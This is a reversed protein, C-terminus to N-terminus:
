GGLDERGSDETFLEISDGVAIAGSSVVHALVGQKGNEMLARLGTCIADMKSCPLRPEYFYLVASGIRVNKGILEILNIGETEINSRVAGPPFSEVGLKRSHEEIWAREILTVQRKSPKGNRSVRGFYRPNGEIGKDAVV